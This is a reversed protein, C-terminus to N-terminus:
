YLWTKLILHAECYIPWQKQQTNSMDLIWKEIRVVAIKISRTKKPPDENM